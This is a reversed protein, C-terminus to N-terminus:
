QFVGCLGFDWDPETDYTHWFDLSVGTYGSLNFTQSTLSINRNNGYNGGPSETWSHTASHSSETTMAWPSQATWGQNGNEVNDTFITCIPSLYSIRSSPRTIKRRCM